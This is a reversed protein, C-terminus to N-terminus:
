PEAPAAKKRRSRKTKAPEQEAPPTPTLVVFVKADEFPVVEAEVGPPVALPYYFCHPAPRPQGSESDWTVIVVAKRALTIARDVIRDHIQRTPAGHLTDLVLVVDAAPLPTTLVDGCIFTMRKAVAPTQGVSRRCLEIAAESFDIGTYRVDPLCPPALRAMLLAAVYGDGCGLDLISQAGLSEVVEAVRRVKHLAPEGRAGAGSTGGAKYREDWFKQADFAM